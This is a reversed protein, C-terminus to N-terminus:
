IIKTWNKASTNKCLSGILLILHCKLSIFSTEVSVSLLCKWRCKMSGSYSAVTLNYWMFNIAMLHFVLNCWHSQWRENFNSWTVETGLLVNYININANNAHSYEVLKVSSMFPLSMPIHKLLNIRLYFLTFVNLTYM